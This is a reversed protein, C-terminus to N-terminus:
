HPTKAACWTRWMDRYAKEISRVLGPEDLLASSVMADRVRRRIDPSGPIAKALSGALSVYEEPTRAVPLGLASLLS